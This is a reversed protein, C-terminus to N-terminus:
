STTDATGGSCCMFDFFKYCVTGAKNVFISHAGIPPYLLVPINNGLADRSRLTMEPDKGLRPVASLWHLDFRIRISPDHRLHDNPQFRDVSTTANCGRSLSFGSMLVVSLRESPM